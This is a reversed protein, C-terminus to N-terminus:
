SHSSANPPFDLVSEWGPFQMHAMVAIVAPAVIRAVPEESSMLVVHRVQLLLVKRSPTGDSGGRLDVSLNLKREASALAM